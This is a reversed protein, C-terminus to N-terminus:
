KFHPITKEREKLEELDYLDKRTRAGFFFSIKPPFILPIEEV